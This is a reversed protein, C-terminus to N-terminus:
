FNYSVLNQISDTTKGRCAYYAFKLSVLNVRIKQSKLNQGKECEYLCTM